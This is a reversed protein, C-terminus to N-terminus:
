KKYRKLINVLALTIQIGAILLFLLPLKFLALLVTDLAFIILYFTFYDRNYLNLIANKM